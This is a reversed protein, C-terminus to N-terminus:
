RFAAEKWFDRRISESNLKINKWIEKGCKFIIRDVSCVKVRVAFTVKRVIDASPEGAVVHTM